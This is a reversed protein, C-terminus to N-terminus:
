IGMLVGGRRTHVVATLEAVYLMLTLASMDLGASYSRDPVARGLASPLSAL